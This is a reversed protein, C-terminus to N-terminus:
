GLSLAIQGTIAESGFSQRGIKRGSSCCRPTSYTPPEKHGNATYTAVDECYLYINSGQRVLSALADVDTPPHLDVCLYGSAHGLARPLCSGFMSDNVTWYAIGAQLLQSRSLASKLAERVNPSDWAPLLTIELIGDDM